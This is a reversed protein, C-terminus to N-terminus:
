WRHKPGVGSQPNIKEKRFTMTPDFFNVLQPWLVDNQVLSQVAALSSNLSTRSWLDFRIFIFIRPISRFKPTKNPRPQLVVQHTPTSRQGGSESATSACSISACAYTKGWSKERNRWLDSWQRMKEITKCYHICAIRFILTNQKKWYENYPDNKAGKETSM